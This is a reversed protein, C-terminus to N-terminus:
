RSIFHVLFDNPLKGLGCVNDNLKPREGADAVKINFNQLLATVCLFITNRAFTEGACLRRGGGFPLSKDYKLCLQGKSNLFREPRFNEPDKWVEESMHLAFLSALVATDKPIEYGGLKTDVMARHPVSSPVLTDYRLSERLTAETYPM